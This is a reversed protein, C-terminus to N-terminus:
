PAAGDTPRDARMPVPGIHTTDRAAQQAIWAVMGDRRRLYGDERRPLWGYIPAESSAKKSRGFGWQIGGYTAPDRGDLSLRDNLECAIAWAAEPTAVWKIIQKVWYMRLINHMWGDLLFQKQAANWTEDATEGRLLQTPSYLAPRPDGAHAALTARGWEPVESYADPTAQGLALNYYYERWTLLEDVFKWRSPRPVDAAEVARMVERPGLVGFHMYPSLRSASEPVAPNARTEKYSPLVVEIARRLRALAAARTGVVDPPPPLSMDVDCRAILADLTELDLPHHTAPLADAYRPQHAALDVPEDFVAARLPVHTKRFRATSAIRDPILRMPVFCAADVAFVALDARAAFREAQARAVYVPMDDTVVCAADAALRYLLGKADTDPRVVHRIFRLGRADVAAGLSYSAELIFRHLRHSAYRYRNGLGHYVVVPLQHANGLAVAHDIIPNDNGRLAQQLWCLVYRGAPRFARDNLAHRRADFSSSSALHM